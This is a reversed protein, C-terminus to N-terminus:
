GDKTFIVVAAISAIVVHLPLNEKSWRRLKQLTKIGFFRYVANLNVDAMRMKPIDTSNIGQVLQDHAQLTFANIDFHNSEIAGAAGKDITKRNMIASINPEQILCFQMATILSLYVNLKNM